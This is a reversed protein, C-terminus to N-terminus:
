GMVTVAVPVAGPLVVGMVWVRGSSITMVGQVYTKRPLLWVSVGEAISADVKVVPGQLAAYVTRREGQRL